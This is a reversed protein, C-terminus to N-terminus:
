SNDSLQQRETVNPVHSCQLHNRQGISNKIKSNECEFNKKNAQKELDKRLKERQKRRGGRLKKPPHPRM